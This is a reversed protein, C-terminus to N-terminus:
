RTGQGPRGPGQIGTQGPHNQRLTPANRESKGTSSSLNCAPLRNSPLASQVSPNELRQYSGSEVTLM